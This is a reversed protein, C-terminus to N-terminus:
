SLAGQSSPDTSTVTPDNCSVLPPLGEVSGDTGVLVIKIGVRRMLPRDRLTLKRRHPPTGPVAVLLIDGPDYAEITMLQGIAAHVLNNEPNGKKKTLPGKKCEARIRRQGVVAVVDGGRSDPSVILERGDKAYRGQWDREGRQETLVWGNGTLFETIPFVTRGNSEVHQDDPCVTVSPEVGPLGVIHFALRLMVEAEPMLASM